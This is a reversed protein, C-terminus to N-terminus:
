ENEFVFKLAQHPRMLYHNGSLDISELCELEQWQYEWPAFVLIETGGAKERINPISIM